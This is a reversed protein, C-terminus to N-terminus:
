RQERAVGGAGRGKSPTPSRQSSADRAPDGLGILHVLVDQKVSELHDRMARAARLSDGAQVAAYIASHEMFSRATRGAIDAIAAREPILERGLTGVLQQLTRNGAARLLADHFAVDSQAFAPADHTHSSAKMARLAEVLRAHDEPGARRAALEAAFAECGLRVEIAELIHGRNSGVWRLWGARSRDPDSGALLLFCGGGRRIEVLELAELFQLAERVTGRGVGFQQALKRESPLREGPQLDLDAILERVQAVVGNRRPAGGRDVGAAAPRSLASTRTAVVVPQEKRIAKAM